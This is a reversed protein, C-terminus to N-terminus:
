QIEHSKAKPPDGPMEGGPFELAPLEPKLYENGSLEYRPEIAGLEHGLIKQGDIEHGPSQYGDIEHGQHDRGDIESIKTVKDVEMASKESAELEHSKRKIKWVSIGGRKARIIVALLMLFGVLGGIVIGAIQGPSLRQSNASKM